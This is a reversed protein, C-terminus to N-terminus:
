REVIWRVKDNKDTKTEETKQGVALDDVKESKTSSRDDMTKSGVSSTDTDKGEEAKELDELYEGDPTIDLYNRLVLNYIAFQNYTEIITDFLRLSALSLDPAEADLRNILLSRLTLDDDAFTAVKDKEEEEEDTQLSETDERDDDLLDQRPQNSRIEPELDKGVGGEEGILVVLFAHLLKQDTLSRVMETTYATAATALTASPSSLATCVVPHWFSTALQAMLATMLRRDAVRAVDNLYEWFSYFEDVIREGDRISELSRVFNADFSSRKRRKKKFSNHANVTIMLSNNTIMAPVSFHIRRRPPRIPVVRNNSSISFAGANKPLKAYFLALREAQLIFIFQKFICDNRIPACGYWSKACGRTNSSTASMNLIVM